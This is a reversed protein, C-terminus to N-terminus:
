TTEYINRLYRDLLKENKTIKKLVMNRFRATLPNSLHFSFYNLKARSDIFKTRELRQKFYIDQIEKIDKSSLLDFLENAGEISQSAGQAMTPFFTYFADGM